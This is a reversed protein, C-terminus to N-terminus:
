AAQKLLNLANSVLNTLVQIIKDKDFNVVPVADDLEIILDLGKEKALPRM